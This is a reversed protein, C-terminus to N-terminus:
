TTTHTEGVIWEFVSDKTLGEDHNPSPASPHRNTHSPSKVREDWWSNMVWNKMLWVMHCIVWWALARNQFSLIQSNVSQTHRACVCMCAFDPHPMHDYPSKFASASICQTTFWAAGLCCKKKWHCVCVGLKIKTCLCVWKCVTVM